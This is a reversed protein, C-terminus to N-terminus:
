LIPCVLPGARGVPTLYTDATSYTHVIRRTSFSPMERVLRATVYRVVALQSYCQRGSWIINGGVFQVAQLWYVAISPKKAHVWTYRSALQVAAAPAAREWTLYSTLLVLRRTAICVRLQCSRFGLWSLAKVVVCYITENVGPVASWAQFLSTSSLMQLRWRFVVMFSLLPLCSPFVSLHVVARVKPNLWATPVYM